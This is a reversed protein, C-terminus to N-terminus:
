RVIVSNEKEAFECFGEVFLSFFLGYISVFRAFFFFL